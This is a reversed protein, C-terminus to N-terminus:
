FTIHLYFTTFIGNVMLIECFFYRLRRKKTGDGSIHTERM